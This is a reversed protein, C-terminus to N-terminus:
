TALCVKVGDGAGKEGGNVLMTRLVVYENVVLHSKM